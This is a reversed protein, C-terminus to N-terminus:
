LERNDKEFLNVFINVIKPDFQTGACDKIRKIAEDSGLSTRYSRDSTMADYADAVSIIKAILPIDEGKLKDPYGGGEFREHHHRMGPIIATLEKIHELIKSGKLPHRKIEEFEEDTLGSPKHLIEDPLGIKGIDHLMAALQIDEKEKLSCGLEEAIALSYQAVRESHGYTYPDKADITSALAKVTNFFFQKIQSFLRANEISVAIQSTLISIINLDDHTLEKNTLHNYLNVVGIIEEKGMLPISLVSKVNAGLGDGLDQFKETENSFFPKGEKIIRTLFEEHTDIKKSPDKIEDFDKIVEVMLESIDKNVLMISGKEMEAIELLMNIAIDLLEKMELTSGILKTAYNIAYFTFNKDELNKTAETTKKQLAILLRNLADILEEIEGESQMEIPKINDPSISNIANILEKISM